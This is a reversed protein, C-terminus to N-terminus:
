ALFGAQFARWSMQVLSNKYAGSPLRTLDNVPYTIERWKEFSARLQDQTM